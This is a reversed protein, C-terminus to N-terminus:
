RQDTRPPPVRLPVVAGTLRNGRMVVPAGTRNEVFAAVKPGDNRFVNDEVVLRQSPHMSGEAGIMIAAEANDTRPGKRMRNGKILAVGGHPLDIEYSATGEVGDDIETDLVTTARARSKIHHGINQERFVSREVVLAAINGIYIGHACSPACVGNRLFRSNRITIRATASPGSLIGNENDEFLVNEVTLDGGEARIGAGNRDPVMARALTLNRVTINNGRTVFLGKGQCPRDAIVTKDPGFGEILLDNATWVACGQHLGPGILIRDGDRQAAAAERLTPFPRGEGVELTRLQAHAPGALLWAM